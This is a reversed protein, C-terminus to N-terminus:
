RARCWEIDDGLVRKEGCGEEQTSRPRLDFISQCECIDFLCRREGFGSLSTFRGDPRDVTVGLLDSRLPNVGIARLWFRDESKIDTVIPQEQRAANRSIVSM